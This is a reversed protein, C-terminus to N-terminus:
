PTPRALRALVRRATPAEVSRGLALYHPALHPRDEVPQGASDLAIVTGGAREVLLMGAAVDWPNTHVGMTLDTWGAAVFSLELASSSLRRVAGYAQTLEGLAELSSDRDARLTERNPFGTTLCLREEPKDRAVDSIDADLRREGQRDALVAVADDASFTLENVPDHVVGAVVEDNIAAAISVSFLSLGHVFNATGDIPDVIWEIDGDGQRGYEEGIIRSNPVAATLIQALQVETAADWETVVDHPASKSRVEMASRFAGRLAPGVKHSAAVAIRRLDRATPVDTPCPQVPSVHTSM